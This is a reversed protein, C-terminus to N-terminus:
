SLLKPDPTCAKRRKQEAYVEPSPPTSGGTIGEERATKIRREERWFEPRQQPKHQWKICHAADLADSTLGLTESVTNDDQLHVTGDVGVGGADVLRGAHHQAVPRRM